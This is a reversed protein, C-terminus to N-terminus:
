IAELRELENIYHMLRSFKCIILANGVGDNACVLSAVTESDNKLKKKPSDSSEILKYPSDESTIRKDSPAISKVADEADYDVENIMEIHMGLVSTSPYLYLGGGSSGRCFGLGEYM